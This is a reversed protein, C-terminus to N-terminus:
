KINELYQHYRHHLVITAAGVGYLPWSVKPLSITVIHQVNTFVKSPRPNDYNGFLYTTPVEPHIFEALDIGGSVELSVLTQGPDIISEEASDIVEVNCHYSEGLSAYEHEIIRRNCLDLQSGEEHERNSYFGILKIIGTNVKLSNSSKFM